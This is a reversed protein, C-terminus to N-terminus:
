KLGSTGPALTSPSVLLSAHRTYDKRKHVESMRHQMQVSAYNGACVVVKDLRSMDQAAHEMGVPNIHCALM